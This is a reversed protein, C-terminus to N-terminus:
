QLSVLVLVMGRGCDLTSMAKGLVAGNAASHDTVKMAHGPTASTTLLDGPAVPGGADADVYCWVRGVNAVPMEGDAVTGKQGLTLGPNIGNAGSIIGAVTRDYARASVRLKGVQAPDISVVMGPIPQADGAPAVDYPEAIDSGGNIVVIDSTVVGNDAGDVNMAVRSQGAANTVAIAGNRVDLKATPANTGIGVSGTNTISMRPNNGNTRFELGNAVLADYVIGGDVNNDPDGFLIGRGQNAPALLSIFTQGNSEVVLPSGTYANVNGASGRRVHLMGEPIETGIGIGVGGGSNITMRPIGGGTRFGLGSFVDTHYTIGGSTPDFVDGFLIGRGRNVPTLLSIYNEANTELVLSSGGYATVNGASGEVVHLRGEPLATGTGIGVDGTSTITMRPINGNTRFDLGNPVSASYAIGGSAQNTPDGFLIGRGENAPTLLSIYNQGSTELVLPSSGYATVNGASGELIHLKGEPSATGIGVDTAGNVFLGRTQVSYPSATMPTVGIAVYSGVGAPHRIAVALNGAASGYPYAGFDVAATFLGNTVSVALVDTTAGSTTFRFDATGNLPVGDVKVQGQYTFATPWPQAQASQSPLFVAAVAVMVLVSATHKPRLTM